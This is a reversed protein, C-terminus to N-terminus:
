PRTEPEALGALNALDERDERDEIKLFGHARLLHPLVAATATADALADHHNDLDVGYRACLDALGHTLLREPDLRRSLDLTCIRQEIRLPVQARRAAREIFEADFDANHAAFVNGDLRRALETLAEAPTPATKLDRRTIGHVHRPGVRQWWHRLRVLTSWRDVVNGDAEVTVVGIQLLHHRRPRLGSTEVDVVAFRPLGEV